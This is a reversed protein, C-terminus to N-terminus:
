EKVFSIGGRETKVKLFYIGSPFYSIDLNEKNNITIEKVVEGMANFILFDSNKVTEITLTNQAPNPYCQFHTTQIADAIGVTNTFTTTEINTLVPPNFDFYIDARNSVSSNQPLTSKTKIKYVVFGHSASENSVSDALQINEFYFQLTNNKLDIHADHSTEIIQLSALDYKAADLTDIVIVNEAPYNGTNQFRIMYHLYDGIKDNLLTKGELCTKDNPDYAGVLTQALNAVNDYMNADNALSITANFNVIDGINNTPPALIHMTVNMTRSEFPQLNSYAWTLQNSNQNTPLISASVFSMKNGQFDLMIDGNAVTTGVNKYHIQYNADFGPRAPILPILTIEVDPFTGNPTICLDLIQTNNNNNPFSINATNTSFYTQNTIQPSFTFTGTGLYALYHGTHNTCTYYINTGDNIKIPAFTYISDNTTCGNMDIDIFTQGSIINYNGGPTYTCLTSVLVNTMSYQQLMSQISGLETPDICIYSLNPNYNFNFSITSLIDGNKLGLSILKNISCNLNTINKNNSIDLRTLQNNSCNLEQLNINNSVDLDTLQNTNCYLNKLIGSNPLYLSMLSNSNCYLNMLNLTNSVDLNTLSNFQCDFVMLNVNNSIDLNTLQNHSCYLGTLNVNNSVDLSTLQNGNCTLGVLSVNNSVDLSTLSNSSCYFTILNVNNSVDLSTLQNSSCSLLTLNIFAEIGTLNAINSSGVDLSTIAQTEVVQINGDGSTDVGLSILKAKFNADPINVNQAQTSGIVGCLLCLFFLLNKM